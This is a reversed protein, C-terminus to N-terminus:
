EAIARVISPFDIGRELLLKINKEEDWRFKM